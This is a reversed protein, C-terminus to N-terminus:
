KNEKELEIELEYIIGKGLLLKLENEKEKLTDKEKYNNFHNNVM